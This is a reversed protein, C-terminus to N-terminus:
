AWAIRTCRLVPLAPAARQQIGVGALRVLHDAQPPLEGRFIHGELRCVAGAAHKVHHLVLKEGLPTEKGLEDPQAALGFGGAKQRLFERGRTKAAAIFLQATRAQLAHRVAILWPPKFNNREKIDLALAYPNEPPAHQM